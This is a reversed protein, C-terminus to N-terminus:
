RLLTKNKYSFHKEIFYVGYVLFVHIKKLWNQNSFKYFISYKSKSFFFKALILLFVTLKYNKKYKTSIKRNQHLPPMNLFMTKSGTFGPNGLFPVGLINIIIYKISFSGCYEDLKFITLIILNPAFSMFNHGFCIKYVHESKM